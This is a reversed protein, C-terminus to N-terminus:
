GAAPTWSCSARSATSRTGPPDHRQARALPPRARAMLRAVKDRGFIPNRWSPSTGGGDGHVVVDASLLEILGDM